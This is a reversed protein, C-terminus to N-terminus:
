FAIFGPNRIYITKIKSTEPSRVNDAFVFTTQKKLRTIGAGRLCYGARRLTVVSGNTAGNGGKM